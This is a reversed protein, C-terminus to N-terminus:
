FAHGINAAMGFFVVLAIYIILVTAGLLFSITVWKKADNSAKVAGAYDGANYKSEVGAAYVIAVIGFVMCCFLTVLIAEVLWTKPPRGPDPDSMVASLSAPRTPSTTANIPPPPVDKFVESLEPVAGAPQWQKLERFWVKTEPTIGAEALEELTFPGFTAVGDTYYYKRM